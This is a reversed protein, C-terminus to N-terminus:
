RRGPSSGPITTARSASANEDINLVAYLIGDGRRRTKLIVPNRGQVLGYFTSSPRVKTVAEAVPLKAKYPRANWSVQTPKCGQADETGAITLTGGATGPRVVGSLGVNAVVHHNGTEATAPLDVAQDVSFTRATGSGELPVNLITVRVELYRKDCDLTGYVTIASAQEGGPTVYSTGPSFYGGNTAVNTTASGGTYLTSAGSAALGARRSRPDKM